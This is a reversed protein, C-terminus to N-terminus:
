PSAQFNTGSVNGLMVIYKLPSAAAAAVAAAAAAQHEIHKLSLLELARKMRHIQKDMHLKHDREKYLLGKCMDPGKTAIPVLVIMTIPM